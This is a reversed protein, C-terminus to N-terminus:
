RRSPMALRTGKLVPVWATGIKRNDSRLTLDDSHLTLGDFCGAM